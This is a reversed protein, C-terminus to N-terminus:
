KLSIKAGMLLDEGLSLAYLTGDGGTDESYEVEVGYLGTEADSTVLRESVVTGDADTLRLIFETGPMSTMGSAVMPSSVEDGSLPSEILVDPAVSSHDDRVLPNEIELGEGVMRVPTGDVELLVLEVDQLGTLTYVLQALRLRMGLAGGDAIFPESVNVTVQEGERKVGLVRAEEPIETALESGLASRDGDRPGEFLAAAVADLDGAVVERAVPVVVDEDVFYVAVRARPGATGEVSASSDQTVAPDEAQGTNESSADTCGGVVFTLLLM